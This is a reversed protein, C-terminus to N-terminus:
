LRGTAGAVKTRGEMKSARQGAEANRGNKRAGIKPARLPNHINVQETGVYHM